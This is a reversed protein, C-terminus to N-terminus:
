LSPAPRNPNLRDRYIGRILASANVTGKWGGAARRFAEAKDASSARLITVLVEEGEPLDIGEVPEIVGRRIRARLSDGSWAKPKARREMPNM